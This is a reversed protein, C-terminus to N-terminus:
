AELMQAYVAVHRHAIAAQTYHALVRQRGRQALQQRLAADDVLRMLQSRLAAVDGEAFILGADGIVHPIEGSSSGVVPVGCSMAEILIRGFQEKWSVTTRSPLVLIDLAHLAEPVHTSSVAPLITIRQNLGLTAAQQELASRQKGDGMLRLRVHAPMGVLAAVLDHLGKEPVLRGLYGITLHLPSLRPPSLRPPSSALPSLRPPPSAPLAPQFIQPDVGFQPVITLPGTFGHRRIIAAAEQNCALAHAAHRLNYREFLNFPPPYYRNINAYNYFCCRAGLAVGLCMAQFTALNFSEEDIHLVAPRLRRLVRGLTPYCHLHHQGNFAIPLAELQYGQTFRRELRQRGVRPEIWSTPVLATLEVGLRAIEELKRQYAGVVLAKSLIVVRM